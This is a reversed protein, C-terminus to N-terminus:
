RPTLRYLSTTERARAHHLPSTPNHARHHTPRTTLQATIGLGATTIRHLLENRTRLGLHEPLDSLILWGEGGPRLHARLGSLFAHLMSSNEDYVGGELASTPTGPLWPPNCVVLDAKGDPFLAPGRVAVSSLGLRDLNARACTLARLSNDTAIIRGCGRRALIAALVGTGTGLDFATEVRAPPPASAVLDVYEGRVPSFVGYHPHIREGLAPVYVGKERWQAAGLVGLLETLAVVTRGAPAGYAETCARRVDPARRLTLSYDDELLVLLKGLVEARRRRSARYRRFAEAPDGGLPAKRDVRRGMARLLQRANHFDGRWLMGTGARAMRCAVDATTSDDVLVIADSPLAGNESHWRATSCIDDETWSVTSM